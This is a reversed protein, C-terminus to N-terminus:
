GSFRGDGSRQMRLMAESPFDSCSCIKTRFRIKWCSFMEQNLRNKTSFVAVPKGTSTPDQSSSSMLIERASHYVQSRDANAEREQMYPPSALLARLQEDDFDSEPLPRRLARLLITHPRHFCLPKVRLDGREAIDQDEAFHKDETLYKNEALHQSPLLARAM